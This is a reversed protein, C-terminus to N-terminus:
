LGGVAVRVFVCIFASEVGVAVAVFRWGVCGTGCCYELWVWVSCRACRGVRSYVLSYM